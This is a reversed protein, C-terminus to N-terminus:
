SNRSRHIRNKEHPFLFLTLMRGSFEFPIESRGAFIAVLCNGIKTAEDMQLGNQIADDFTESLDNFRM